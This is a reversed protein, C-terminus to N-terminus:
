QTVPSITILQNSENVWVAVAAAIQEPSMDTPTPPTTAPARAPDDWIWAACPKRTGCAQVGADRLATQSLGPPCFVVTVLENTDRM